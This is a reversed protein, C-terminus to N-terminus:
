LNTPLGTVKFYAIPQAEISSNYIFPGDKNSISNDICIHDFHSLIFRLFRGSIRIEQSHQQLSLSSPNLYARSLWPKM